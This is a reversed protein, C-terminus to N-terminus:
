RLRARAAGRRRPRAQPRGDRAPATAGSRDTSALLEDVLIRGSGHGGRALAHLVLLQATPDARRAARVLRRGRADDIPRRRLSLAATVAELVPAELLRQEDSSM